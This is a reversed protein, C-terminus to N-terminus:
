LKNLNSNFYHPDHSVERGIFPPLDIETKPSSLEIEALLLGEHRGHFEDVEWTHGRYDIIHRTKEIYGGECVGAHLMEMADSFPLEYEWEHREIGTTRGKVTLYAKDNSMRLRVIGDPRHSIYAQIYKESKIVYKKWSDDAILFKREIEKAM